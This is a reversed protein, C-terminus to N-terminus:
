REDVFVTVGSYAVADGVSIGVGSPEYMMACRRFSVNECSVLKTMEIALGWM